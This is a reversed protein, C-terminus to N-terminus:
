IERKAIIEEREKLAGLAIEFMKRVKTQREEQSMKKKSWLEDSITLITGSDKNHKIATAFLAFSEMEVCASKTLEALEQFSKTYYYFTNTSHVKVKPLDKGLLKKGSSELLKNLNASPLLTNNDVPVGLNHAFELELSASAEVLVVEGLKLDETYSGSTGVRVIVDVSYESFLEEAIIGISAFGMGSTGITVWNGKYSGSWFEMGRVKSVLQPSVLLLHAMHRARLPDGTLIVFPAIEKKQASIHISM